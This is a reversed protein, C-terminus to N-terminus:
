SFYYVKTKKELLHSVFLGNSHDLLQFSLALTMRSSSLFGFKNKNIIRLPNYFCKTYQDIVRDVSFSDAVIKLGYNNWVNM